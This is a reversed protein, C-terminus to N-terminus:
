NTSPRNDVPGLGDLKFFYFLFFINLKKEETNFNCNIAKDRVDLNREMEMDGFFLNGDTNM